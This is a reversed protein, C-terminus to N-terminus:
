QPPIPGWIPFLYYALGCFTHAGFALACVLSRQDRRWLRLM